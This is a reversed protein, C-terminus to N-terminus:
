WVYETNRVFFFDPRLGRIPAKYWSLSASQGDTTVYSESEAILEHTLLQTNLQPTSVLSCRLRLFPRNKYWFWALWPLLSSVRLGTLFPVLNLCDSITLLKVIITFFHWYIWDVLGSGTIIRWSVGFVLVHCYQRDSVDTLTHRVKLPCLHLVLTRHKSHSRWCPM